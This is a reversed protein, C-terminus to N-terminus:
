ASVAHEIRCSFADNLVTGGFTCKWGHSWRQNLNDNGLTGLPKTVTEIAEGDIESSGYAGQGFVLTGYVNIGGSGAGAFVVANTTEVFRVSYLKAVEGTYLSDPNSYEAANIWETIGQLDYVTNPHVIAVYDNNIKLANNGALTRVAKKLETGSMINSTGISSRGGVAGAYQVTLGSTMFSRALQDITNGAQQGQLEVTEAILPDISQWIVLDTGEVYDGYQYVTMQINTVTLQSGAPTVGETLATTAAALLSFRRRNITNGQGKPVPSKSCFQAHILNPRAAKLLALDYAQRVEPALGTSSVYNVAM